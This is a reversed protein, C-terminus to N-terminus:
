GVPRREARFTVVIDDGERLTVPRDNTEGPALQYLTPFIVRVFYEGEIVGGDREGFVGIGNSGTTTARWYISTGGEVKYLDLLVGQIGVNNQNLVEVSLDGLPYNETSSCGGAGLLLGFAIIASFRRRLLPM